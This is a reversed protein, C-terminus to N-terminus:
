MTSVRQQLQIHQPPTPQGKLLSLQKEADTRLSLGPNRHPLTSDHCEGATETTKWGFSLVPSRCPALGARPTLSTAAAQWQWSCGRGTPLEGPLGTHSPVMAPKKDPQSLNRLAVSPILIIQQKWKLYTGVAWPGELPMPFIEARQQHWIIKAIFPHKGM